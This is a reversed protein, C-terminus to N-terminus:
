WRRHRPGPPAHAWAAGTAIARRLRRRHRQRRARRHQPRRRADFRGPGRNLGTVRGCLEALMRAPDAGKALVHGHGRHTSTIVDDPWRPASAPPSRRRGSTRTSAASSRGAAVLEVAREEFRRILRVTRYLRVPDADTVGPGKIAALIGDWLRARAALATNVTDACEQWKADDDGCLDALMQMAM